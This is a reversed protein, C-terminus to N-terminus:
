PSSRAPPVWSVVGIRLPEWSLAYQGDREVLREKLLRQALRDKTSGPRTWLQRRVLTLAQDQEEYSLPARETLRVEFLRRRALLLLLFEPLSPLAAREEGHVEPWFRDFAFTPQRELLVAICLRRAAAEMADLFPGMAEIDYGVHAILAVDAAVDRIPAVDPWRGKIARVNAIGHESMGDRLIALMGESPDLAIVERAVLALPLAYRGGGAGIDLVTEGPRVLSRLVELAAEDRRHPDARFLSAVPAYFDAGDPAERFREVQERNARVRDAWTRLADDVSPRLPDAMVGM